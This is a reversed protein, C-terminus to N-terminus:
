VIPCPPSLDAAYGFSFEVFFFSHPNTRFYYTPEKKKKKRMEEGKM